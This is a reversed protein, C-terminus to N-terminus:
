SGLPIDSSVGKYMSLIVRNSSFDLRSKSSMEFLNSSMDAATAFSGEIEEILLSVDARARASCIHLFNEPAFSEEAAGEYAVRGVLEEVTSSAPTEGRM